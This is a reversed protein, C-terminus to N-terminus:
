EERKIERCIYCNQNSKSKFNNNKRKDLWSNKDCDNKIIIFLGNM